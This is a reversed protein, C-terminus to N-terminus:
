RCSQAPLAPSASSIVSVTEAPSSASRTARLWTASRIPIAMADQSTQYPYPSRSIGIATNTPQPVCMAPSMSVSEPQM